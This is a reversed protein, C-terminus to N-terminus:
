RESHAGRLAFGELYSLFSAERHIILARLRYACVALQIKVDRSSEGQHPCSPGQAGARIICIANWHRLEVLQTSPAANSSDQLCNGIGIGINCPSLGEGASAQSGGPSMPTELTPV